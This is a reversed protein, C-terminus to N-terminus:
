PNPAVRTAKAEATLRILISDRRPAAVAGPPAARSRPKLALKLGDDIGVAAARLFESQVLETRSGGVADLLILGGSIMMVGETSDMQDMPVASLANLIDDADWQKAAVLKALGAEAQEYTVRREPHSQLDTTVAGYTALRAIAEVRAPSVAPQSVDATTNTSQCGTVLVAPLVLFLALFAGLLMILAFRSRIM